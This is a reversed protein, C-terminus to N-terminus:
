GPQWALRLLQLLGESAENRGMKSAGYQRETFCIPLQAIKLKERQARHNMEVQFVYGESAIRKLNIRELASRTFCKFGSTLDSIRSQLLTQAYLNAARSLLWRRWPWGVIRGAGVYRSGIAVDAGQRCAALLRFIDAPDHSFDADMQCIYQWGHRLAFAFGAKYASGLGGKGPRRLLYIGEHREMLAVVVEATGDPSNDDVVLIDPPEVLRQLACIVSTINTRENYTPVVVVCDSSARRQGEGANYSKDGVPLAGQSPAAVPAFGVTDDLCYEPVSM